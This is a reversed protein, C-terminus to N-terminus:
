LGPDANTIVTMVSQFVNMIGQELLPIAALIVVAMLAGILAFEIAELGHDFHFQHPLRHSKSAPKSSSDM